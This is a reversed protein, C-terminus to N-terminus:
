RRQEKACVVSYVFFDTDPDYRNLELVESVFCRGPRREVHVLVFQVLCFYM